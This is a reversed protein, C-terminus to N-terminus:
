ELRQFQQFCQYGYRTAAQTQDPMGYWTKLGEQEAKWACDWNFRIKTQSPGFVLTGSFSSCSSQGDIKVDTIPEKPHSELLKMLVRVVKIRPARTTVILDTEEGNAFDQVAQKFEPTAHSAQLLRDLNEDTIKQNGWM